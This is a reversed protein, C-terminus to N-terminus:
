MHFVSRLNQRLEEVIVLKSEPMIRGHYRLMEEIGRTVSVRGKGERPNEDHRPVIYGVIYGVSKLLILAGDVYQSTLEKEEILKSEGNSTKLTLPDVEIKIGSDLEIIATYVEVHYGKEVLKFKIPNKGNASIYYFDKYEGGGDNSPKVVKVGSNGSEFIINTISM